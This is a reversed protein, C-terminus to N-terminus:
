NATDIHSLAASQAAALAELAQLYSPALEVLLPSATEADVATQVRTLQSPLHRQRHRELAKRGVGFTRALATLNVRQRALRRDIEARDPRLCVTCPSPM